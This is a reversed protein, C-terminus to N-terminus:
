PNSEGPKSRLLIESLLKAFQQPCEAQPLHGCGPILTLHVNPLGARLREPYDLGMYRDAKGWLIDIATTVEGLRGDLLYSELNESAEFMRAVQGHPARRVLDDLVLDPTPPSSPDRLTAM